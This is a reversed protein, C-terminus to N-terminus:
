RPAKRDCAILPQVVEWANDLLRSQAKTAPHIGDAQMMGPVLAVSDLLFPLLPVQSNVAVRTYVREFQWRYIPNYSLPMKMGLLVPKAGAAKSLDVLRQLNHQMKDLSQKQLGDNGGLEIIVTNPKYRALQEPLAALGGATTEGSVAVNVVHVGECQQDLRQQLLNVWGKGKAVGYGASISDGVVLVTNNVTNTAAAPLQQAIVTQVLSILVVPLLLTM